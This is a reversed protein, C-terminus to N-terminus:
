TKNVDTVNVSSIQEVKAPPYENNLSYTLEILFFIISNNKKHEM